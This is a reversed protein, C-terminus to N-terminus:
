EPRPVAREVESPAAVAPLAKPKRGQDVLLYERGGWRLAGGRRLTRAASFMIWITIANGVPLTPLYLLLGQAGYLVGMSAWYALSGAAGSIILVAPSPFFPMGQALLVIGWVLGALSCLPLALHVLAKRQAFARLRPSRRRACEIFIREWGLRYSRFDDYMRCVLLGDAILVGSRRGAHKMKRAIEVDELVYDRVSEIGGVAEYGDRRFLMFQGNAMARRNTDRNAAELPFQRILEMTTSPQVIKEFWRSRTLTSWLSLLEIGREHAIAVTARVCGPELECDADIFLIYEADRMHAADRVGRHMAHVKGAWGEPCETIEVIEVRADGPAEREIVARTNDTCRDLAFVFRLNPYDQARLTRVLQAVAHEENFCPVVVCVLPARGSEDTPVPLALGRRASFGGFLGRLIKGLGVFWYIACGVGMVMLVSGIIHEVMTM